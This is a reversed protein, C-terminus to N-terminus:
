DSIRSKVHGANRHWLHLLRNLVRICFRSQVGTIPLPDEYALDRAMLREIAQYPKLEGNIIDNLMEMIPVDVQFQNALEVASAVSYLGETTKGSNKVSELSAGQGIQFGAMYNRGQPRCSLFLDGAGALGTFTREDAGMVVALRIMERLGRDFIAASANSGIEMGDCIGVAIAIPNKLIGGLEVGIVDDTLYPRFRKTSLVAGVRELVAKNESAVVTAAPKGRVIESAFNPGSIVACRNVITPDEQSLVQLMRLNTGEEYGKSGCVIDTRRDLNRGVSMRYLSRMAQAVPVLFVIDADKLAYKADSTAHINHPLKVGPFRVQNEHTENISQAQDASRCFLVVEEANESLPVVIATGFTGATMIVVKGIKSEVSIM